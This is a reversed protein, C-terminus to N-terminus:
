LIEGNNVQITKLAKIAENFFNNLYEIDIPDYAIGFFDMFEELAWLITRSGLLSYNSVKEVAGISKLSGQQLYVKGVVPSGHVFKSTVSYELYYSDLINLEKCITKMTKGEGNWKAYDDVKGNKAWYPHLKAFATEVGEPLTMNPSNKKGVIEEFTAFDALRKLMMAPTPHKYIYKLNTRIEFAVRHVFVSPALLVYQQNHINARLMDHLQVVMPYTSHILDSYKTVKSSVEETCFSFYGFTATLFKEVEIISQSSIYTELRPALSYWYEVWEPQEM